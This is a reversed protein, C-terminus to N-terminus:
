QPPSPQLSLPIEGEDGIVMITGDPLIHHVSVSGGYGLMGFVVPPPKEGRDALERIRSTLESADACLLSEVLRKQEQTYRAAIQCAAEVTM